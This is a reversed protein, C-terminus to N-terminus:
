YEQDALAPDVGGYLPFVEEVVYPGGGSGPKASFLVFRSVFFPELRLAGRRQLWRAVVEPPTLKLRALTVHPRFNRTEPALGAKRAAREHARALAELPESPVVGAWLARPENGGFAGVGSIAVEFAKADIESLSDSLERAVGNDIDGAFRLTIHLSEPEIWRAGPLPQRLSTLAEIVDAPIEIATFLRPM